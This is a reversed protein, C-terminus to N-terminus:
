SMKSQLWLCPMCSPLKPRPDSSRARLAKLVELAKARLEAPTAQLQFKKRASATVVIEYAHDQGLLLRVGLVHPGLKALTNQLYSQASQNNLTAAGPEVGSKQELDSDVTAAFSSLISTSAQEMSATSQKLRADEEPTRSTKAQLIASDVSAQEYPMSLKELEVMDGQAKLQAATPSSPNLGPPPMLLPLTCM